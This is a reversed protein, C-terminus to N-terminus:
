FQANITFTFSAVTGDYARIRFEHSNTGRVSEPNIGNPLSNHLYCLNHGTATLNVGKAGIKSAINTPLTYSLSVERLSVYNLKHYWADNVVGNGWSNIWYHWSGAHTPDIVGKNVLEAYTEGSQYQGTGVTYTKDGPMTINTGKTIIGNPIVGDNYQKGNWISTFAKGGHAADRWKLSYETMGNGTGYRNNFSAVYGGWRGDLAVNLRLNKWRLNTSVSGLFKPNIDGIAKVTGDRQIYPFHRGNSYGLVMLGSEEDIKPTSDSM